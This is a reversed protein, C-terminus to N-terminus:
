NPALYPGSLPWTPAKSDVKPSNPSPYNSYQPADKQQTTQVMDKAAAGTSATASATAPPAPAPTPAWPVAPPSGEAGAGPGASGAGAGARAGAADAPLSLPQQQPPPQWQQPPPQPQWQPQPPPQESATAKPGQGLVPSTAARLESRIFGEINGRIGPVNPLPIRARAQM